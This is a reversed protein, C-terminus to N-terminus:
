RSLGSLGDGILKVGIIFFLGSTIVANNWAMWNKLCDLLERSRDEMTFYILVPVSVGITAIMVFVVYAVVQQGTSIGMQTIAAAGAVALLLNKPNL